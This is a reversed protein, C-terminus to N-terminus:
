KLEDKLKEKIEIVKQNAQMERPLGSYISRLDNLTQCSQVKKVAESETMTTTPKIKRIRLAEVVEGFASVNDKYLTIKKGLWNEIFPTYMKSIIKCNTKNLIMPKADTEKFTAVFVRETQGRDNKVEDMKTTEITLTMEGDESDFIYSGIFDYNFNKKWHTM